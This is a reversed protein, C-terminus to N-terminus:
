RGSGRLTGREPMRTQRAMRAMEQQPLDATVATNWFKELAASQKLYARVKRELVFRPAVEEFLRPTGIQHSFYVREIAEQAKVREDFTLNRAAVQTASALVIGLSLVASSALRRM